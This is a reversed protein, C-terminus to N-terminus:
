WLSTIASFLRITVSQYWISRDYSVSFHYGLWDLPKTLFNSGSTLHVLSKQFWSTWVSILEDVSIFSLSQIRTSDAWILVLYMGFFQQMNTHVLLKFFGSTRVSKLMNTSSYVLTWSIGTTSQISHIYVYHICSSCCSSKTVQRLARDRHQITRHSRQPLTAGTGAGVGASQQLSLM